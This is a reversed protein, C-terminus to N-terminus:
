AMGERISRLLNRLYLRAIMGGILWNGGARTKRFIGGAMLVCVPLPTLLPENVVLEVPLAANVCFLVEVVSGGLTAEVVFNEVVVEIPLSAPSDNSHIFIKTTPCHQSTYLLQLTTNGIDGTRQCAITDRTQTRNGITYGSFWLSTAQVLWWGHM